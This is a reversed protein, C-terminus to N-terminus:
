SQLLKHMGMGTLILDPLNSLSLGTSYTFPPKVDFVGTLHCNYDKVNQAVATYFEAWNFDDSCGACEPKCEHEPEASM